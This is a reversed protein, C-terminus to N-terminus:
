LSVVEKKFDLFQRRDDSIPLGMLTRRGDNAIFVFEEGWPLSILLMKGYIFQMVKLPTKCAIDREHGFWTAAHHRVTMDKPRVPIYEMSM